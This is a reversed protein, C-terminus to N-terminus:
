IMDADERLVLAFAVGAGHACILLQPVILNSVYQPQLVAVSCALYQYAITLLVLTWASRGRWLAAWLAFPAFFATGFQLLHGMAQTLARVRRRLPAGIGFQGLNEGEDFEGTYTGTDGRLLSRLKYQVLNVYDLPQSTVRTLFARRLPGDAEFSCSAYFRRAFDDGLQDRIIQYMTPDGDSYTIDFRRQPDQGLGILLVHGQNTSRTLPTGGTAHWTYVMWPVLTLGVAVLWCAAQIMAVRSFKASLCLAAAFVVPLMYLDSALNLNLGFFVGSLVLRWWTVRKGQAVPILLALSLLFFSVALSHCWEISHYAYWPICVVLSIRLFVRAWRNLLNFEDLVKLLYWVSFLAVAIQLTLLVAKNTTLLLVWGYGWMPFTPPIPYSPMVDTTAFGHLIRERFVLYKEITHFTHTARINLLTIALSMVGMLPLYLRDVWAEARNM